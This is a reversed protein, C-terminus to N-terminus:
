AIGDGVQSGETTRGARWKGSLLSKILGSHNNSGRSEAVFGFMGEQIHVTLHVIEIQKAVKGSTVEFNESDGLRDIVAELNDAFAYSEVALLMGKQHRRCRDIATSPTVRTTLPNPLLLATSPLPVRTAM